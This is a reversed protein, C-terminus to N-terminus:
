STMQSVTPSAKEKQMELYLIEIFRDVQKKRGHDLASYMEMLIRNMAIRYFVDEETRKGTLLYQVPVEFYDAIKKLKDTKPSSEGKKWASFTQPAIGTAKAVDAARVGKEKMLQEFIEYM